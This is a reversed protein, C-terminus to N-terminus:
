AAASSCAKPCACSAARSRARPRGAEARARLADADADAFRLRFRSDRGLDHGRVRSIRSGVVGGMFLVPIFVCVLSVTMSVITFGIERAGQIAAKFPPMGNEIYRYINELVVIADDVVFGVCLVLALLTMNNISYGLVYMAAFTGVISLPLALAPIITARGSRLFLFIVLVVLVVAELLTRQVASVSNRISVSRDMLVEIGIAGPVSARFEPLRRKV